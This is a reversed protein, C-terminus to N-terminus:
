PLEATNCYKQWSLPNAEVDEIGLQNLGKIVIIAIKMVRQNLNSGTIQRIM